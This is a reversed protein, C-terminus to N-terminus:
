FSSHMLINYFKESVWTDNNHFLQRTIIYINWSFLWQGGTGDEWQQVNKEAPILFLSVAM